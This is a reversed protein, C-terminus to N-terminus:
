LSAPSEQLSPSVSPTNDGSIIAAVPGRGRAVLAIRRKLSNYLCIQDDGLQLLVMDGPLHTANRVKWDRFPTEFALRAEEGRKSDVGRLGEGAWFGTAFDWTSEIAAGLKPVRGFGSHVREVKSGDTTADRDWPAAVSAFSRAILLGGVTSPEDALSNMYLDYKGPETGSARVFLRDWAGASNLDFFKETKTEALDRRYVDGDEEAIYYLTVGAPASMSALDAVTVDTLLMTRSPSWYWAILLVYSVTQVLLSGKLGKAWQRPDRRFLFAIFLLELLVTIVFLIVLTLLLMPRVNEITMPLRLLGSSLLVSGAWASVYNALIMVGVSKWKPLHFLFALILGELVGIIANGFLLHGATAWMLPTGANALATAPLCLLAALLLAEARGTRM